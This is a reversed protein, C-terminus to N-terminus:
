NKFFSVIWTAIQIASRLRFFASRSRKKLIAIRVKRIAIWFPNCDFAPDVVPDFCDGVRVWLYCFKIYTTQLDWFRRINLKYLKLIFILAVCYKVKKLLRFFIIYTTKVVYISFYWLCPRVLTLLSYKSALKIFSYKTFSRQGGFCSRVWVTVIGTM